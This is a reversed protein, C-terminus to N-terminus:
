KKSAFFVQIYHAKKFPIFECDETKSTGCNMTTSGANQLFKLIQLIPDKYPPVSGGSCGFMPKFRWDPWEIASLRWNPWEEGLVM